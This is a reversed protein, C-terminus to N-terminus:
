PIILVGTRVNWQRDSKHEALHEYECGVSIRLHPYVIRIRCIKIIIVGGGGVRRDWHDRPRLRPDAAARRSLNPIEFGVPPM